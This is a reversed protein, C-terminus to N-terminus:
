KKLEVCTGKRKSEEAAEMFAFIEITEDLDVPPIGTQLFKAIEICLERYPVGLEVTAIRQTGFVTAGFGSKGTRMGRYTGVRGDSWTGVVLDVDRCHTRQVRECGQGMLAFLGEIGHVGYFFL